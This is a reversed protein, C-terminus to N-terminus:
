EGETERQSERKREQVNEGRNRGSEGAEEGVQVLTTVTRHKYKGEWSIRVLSVVGRPRANRRVAESSNPHGRLSRMVVERLSSNAKSRCCCTGVMRETRMWMKSDTASFCRWETVGVGGGEGLTEGILGGIVLPLEGRATEEEGCGWKGRERNLVM